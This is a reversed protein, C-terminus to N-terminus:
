FSCAASAAGLNRVDRSNYNEKTGPKIRFGFTKGTAMSPSFYGNGNRVRFDLAGDGLTTRRESTRSYSAAPKKIKKKRRRTPAAGSSLSTEDFADVGALFNSAEDRTDGSGYAVPTAGGGRM